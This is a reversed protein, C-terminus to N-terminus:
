VSRRPRAALFQRPNRAEEAENQPPRRCLMELFRLKQTRGDRLLLRGTRPRGDRNSVRRLAHTQAHVEFATFSRREEGHPWPRKSAFDGRILAEKKKRSWGKVQREAAIADAIRDFWQSFVLTVPRRKATYGQYTGANHESVRAELGIRATGTYYSGDACCLIYLYAGDAMIASRAMLRFPEPTQEAENQPLRRCLMELFRLKAHARRSSPPPGHSPPRMTRSAGCRALSTCFRFEIASRREEGHPRSLAAVSRVMLGPCATLHEEVHPRTPKTRASLPPKTQPQNPDNQCFRHSTPKPENQCIQAPERSPLSLRAAAFARMAFKRRSRVRREYRDIAALRRIAESTAAELFPLRAQRVRRLDIEAAAVRVALEHLHPAGASGAIARALTAIAQRCGPDSAVPLTLGHRHANQAARMKGAATRPGTSKQANARNAALRAGSIM